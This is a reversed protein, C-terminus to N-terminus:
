IAGSKLRTTHSTEHRVKNICSEGPFSDIMSGPASTYDDVIPREVVARIRRPYAHSTHHTWPAGLGATAESQRPGTQM